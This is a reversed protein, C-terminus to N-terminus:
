AIYETHVSIFADKYLRKVKLPHAKFIWHKGLPARLIVSGSECVQIAEERWKRGTQPLRAKNHQHNHSANPANRHLM